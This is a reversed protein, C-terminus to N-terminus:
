RGATRPRRASPWRRRRDVSGALPRDRLLALARGVPDDVGKKEVLDPVAHRLRRAKEVGRAGRPRAQRPRRLAHRRAERGAAPWGHAPLRRQPAVPEHLLRVGGSSGQAPLLLGREFIDNAHAMFTFPMGAARPTCRSRRRRTPSTRMCTLAAAALCCARRAGVLCQYALKWAGARRASRSCTALLWGLARVGSDSPRCRLLGLVM